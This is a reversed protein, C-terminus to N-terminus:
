ASLLLRSLNEPLLKGSVGTCGRELLYQLQGGLLLFGLGVVPGEQQRFLM